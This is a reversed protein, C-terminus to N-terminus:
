STSQATQDLGLRKLLDLYRPDTRVGDLDDDLKIGLVSVDREAYSRELWEFGEDNDGLYFHFCAISYANSMTEQLHTEIEPLLRRCTQRDDMLRAIEADVGVNLLPYSDQLLEVFTKYERRMDDYMKLRGYCYAMGWHASAFGPDLETARRFLELAKGYERRIFYYNGHNLNIILSLPDLELAKEIQELAEDWRLQCRLTLYYWQHATAYSPKM